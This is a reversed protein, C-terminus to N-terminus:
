SSSSINNRLLFKWVEVVDHGFMKSPVREYVRMEIFEPWIEQKEITQYSKIGGTEVVIESDKREEYYFGSLLGAQINENERFIKRYFEYKEKLCCEISFLSVFASPEFNGINIKGIKIYDGQVVHPALKIQDIGIYNDYAGFQHYECLGCGFDIVNLEEDLPFLKVFLNLMRDHVKRVTPEKLYDKYNDYFDENYM